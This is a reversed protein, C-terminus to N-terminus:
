RRRFIPNFIAYLYPWAWYLIWFPGCYRQTFIAWPIPPRGKPGCVQSWRQRLTMTSDKFTGKKDNRKCYGQYGRASFISFGANRVRFGYDFDGLGHIFRSELNGIVSYIQRPILVINGNMSACELDESLSHVIEPTTKKWWTPFNVGGYTVDSTSYDLTTGVVVVSTATKVRIRLEADLLEKIASSTILTDDNLWLVYDPQDAYAADLSLRMGGNWYLNGNGLLVKVQPFERRIRETTGDSSGDDTIYVYLRVSDPLNSHFLHFLAETTKDRRNFCTM